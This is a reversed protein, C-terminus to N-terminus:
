KTLSVEKIKGRDTKVFLGTVILKTGCNYCNNGVDIQRQCKPCVSITITFESKM